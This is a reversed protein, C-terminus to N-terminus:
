DGKLTARKQTLPHAITLIPEGNPCKGRVFGAVQHNRDIAIAGISFDISPSGSLIEIANTFTIPRCIDWAILEPESDQQALMYAFRRDFKDNGALNIQTWQGDQEINEIRILGLQSEEDMGLCKAPFKKGDDRTITVQNGRKWDDDGLMAFIGQGQDIMIAPRGPKQPRDVQVLAKRLQPLVEESRKQWDDWNNNLPSISALQDYHRASSSFVFHDWTSKSEGVSQIAIGTINLERFNSFIDPGVQHWDNEKIKKPDLKIVGQDAKSTGVSYIAPSETDRDHLLRIQVYGDGQKEFAFRLQRYQGPLPRERIEIPRDFSAIQVWPGDNIELAPRSVLRIDNRWIAGAPQGAITLLSDVQKESPADLVPMLFSPESLFHIGRWDVAINDPGPTQSVELTVEHGAFPTLDVLYPAPTNVHDHTNVNKLPESLVPIDNIRVEINPEDGGDFKAANIELYSTEPAIRKTTTLRLPEDKAVVTTRWSPAEFPYEVRRRTTHFRLKAIDSTLQWGSWALITEPTQEDIAERLKQHDLLVRPEIWNVMDRIDFPDAGEPRDQHAMDVELILQGDGPLSNWHINGGETTKESGVISKSEFKPSSEWSVFVRGVICGRDHAAQDIGVSTRFGTAIPPLAFSLRSPAMVGLSWGSIRDGSKATGALIGRNIRASFGNRSFMAGDRSEHYPLRFLPMEDFAWSRRMWTSRCEVWIPDISWAPQIGHAWRDSNNNDGRSDADIRQVSTTAVLGDSTEWQVLRQQDAPAVKGGPFLIALERLHSQWPSEVELHLEAIEHFGFSMREREVLLHIGAESFRIARFTIERGNKLFVTAPVHRDILAPLQEWVIKRVFDRRVRIDSRYRSNTSRRFPFSPTILFHEPVDAQYEVGEAAYADPHGPIRDGSFLEIYANPMEAPGLSRDVMWRMPNGGNILSQGALQPMANGSYWNRLVDDEVVRGDELLAVFRKEEDGYAFSYFVCASILVCLLASRFPM